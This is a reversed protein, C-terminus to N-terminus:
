TRGPGGGPPGGASTTKNENNILFFLPKQSSFSSCLSKKRHCPAVQPRMSHHPPYKSSNSNQTKVCYFQTRLKSDTKRHVLFFDIKQVFIYYKQVLEKNDQISLIIYMIKM